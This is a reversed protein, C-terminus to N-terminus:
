DEYKQAKKPKARKKYTEIQREDDRRKFSIDSYLLMYGATTLPLLLGAAITSLATQTVVNSLEFFVDNNSHTLAHLPELVSVDTFIVRLLAEIPVSLYASVSVKDFLVVIAYPVLVGTLAFLFVGLFIVRWFNGKVLDISKKMTAIASLNEEFCLVQFSLSLYVSAICLFIIGILEGVLLIITQLSSELPLLFIAAPAALAVLWLLSILLLLTIYTKSRVNVSEDYIFLDKVPNGKFLTQTLSNLSIMKILYDWFARLFIVFGPLILLILILLIVFTNSLFPNIKALNFVEKSYYYTAGLIGAVGILQGFVPFAMVILFLLFNSIYLGISKFTIKLINM